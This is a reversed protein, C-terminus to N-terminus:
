RLDANKISFNELKIQAGWTGMICFSGRPTNEPLKAECILKDGDYAKVMDSTIELSVDLAKPNKALKGKALVEAKGSLTSILEVDSSFARLVQLSIGRGTRPDSLVLLRLGGDFLGGKFNVKGTRMTKWLMVGSNENKNKLIWVDDYPEIVSRGSEVLGKNMKFVDLPNKESDFEYEFDVGRLTLLSVVACAILLCKKM